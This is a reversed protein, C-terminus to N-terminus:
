FRIIVIWDLYRRFNAAALGLVGSEGAEVAQDHRYGKVLMRITLPISDESLTMFEDAGTGLIKWALLSVEGCSLGAMSIELDRKVVVPRSARVSQQLCNAKEPEVVSMARFLSTLQSKKM